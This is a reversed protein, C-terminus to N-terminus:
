WSRVNGNRRKVFFRDALPSFSSSSKVCKISALSQTRKSRFHISSFDMLQGSNKFVVRIWCTIGWDSVCVGVWFLENMLSMMLNTWKMLKMLSMLNMWYCHNRRISSFCNGFECLPILFSDYTNEIEANTRKEMTKMRKKKTRM